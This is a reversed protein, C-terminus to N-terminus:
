SLWRTLLNGVQDLPSLAPLDARRVETLVRNGLPTLRFRDTIGQGDVERRVVGVRFLWMLEDEAARESLTQRTLGGARAHEGAFEAVALSREAMSALGAAGIAGLRVARVAREVTQLDLDM